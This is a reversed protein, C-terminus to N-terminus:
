ETTLTRAPDIRAARRAPVYSAAFGACLLVSAAASLALPDASPVGYLV